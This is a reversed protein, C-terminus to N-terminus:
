ETIQVTRTSEDIFTFHLHIANDPIVVEINEPWEVFILNGPDKVIEQWGLSVIEKASALRYADIHVLRVFPRNKHKTIEYVKEIVFTPSTVEVNVGLIHAVAKTFATKGAGLDGHLAVVTANPLEPLGELFQEAIKATEILSTSTFQM